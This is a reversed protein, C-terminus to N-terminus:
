VLLKEKGSMLSVKNLATFLSKSSSSKFPIGIKKSNRVTMGFTGLDINGLQYHKSLNKVEIIPNESM